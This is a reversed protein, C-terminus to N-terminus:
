GPVSARGYGVHLLIRGVWRLSRATPLKFDLADAIRDIACFLFCVAVAEELAADSVGARRALDLDAAVVADPSLTLKELFALTGRLREDVPASRWDALVADLVTPEIGGKV